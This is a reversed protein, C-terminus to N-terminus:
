RIYAEGAKNPTLDNEVLSFYDRQFGWMMIGEVGKFPNICKQIILEYFHM